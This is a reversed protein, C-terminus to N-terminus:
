GNHMGRGLYRPSTATTKSFLEVLHCSNPVTLLYNAALNVSAHRALHFISFIYQFRM